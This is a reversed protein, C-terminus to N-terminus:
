YLLLKMGGNFVALVTMYLRAVECGVIVPADVLVVHLLERCDTRASRDLVMDQHVPKPALEPLTRRTSINQMQQTENVYQQQEICNAWRCGPDPRLEM